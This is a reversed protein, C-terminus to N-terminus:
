INIHQINININWNEFILLGLIEHVRLLNNDISINDM